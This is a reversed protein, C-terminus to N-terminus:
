SEVKVAHTLWFSTGVLFVEVTLPTSTFAAYHLAELDLEAGFAVKFRTKFTQGATVSAAPGRKQWEGGPSCGPPLVLRIAMDLPADARNTLELGLQVTDSRAPRPPGNLQASFSLPKSTM